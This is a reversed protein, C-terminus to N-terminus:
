GVRDEGRRGSRVFRFAEVYPAKPIGVEIDVLITVDDNATRAILLQRAQQWPHSLDEAHIEVRLVDVARAAGCRNGLWPDM